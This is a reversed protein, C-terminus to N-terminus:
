RLNRRSQITVAVDFVTCGPPLEHFLERWTRKVEAELQEATGSNDIVFDALAGKRDLPWQAADRRRVEEASLGSREGVRQVRLELPASVVIVADFRDGQGTEYLLPIDQVVVQAGQARYAELLRESEARVWPHIIANLQQRQEDDAFVIRALAARDRAGSVGMEDGYTERIRELVAPDATAERALQDADILEAGLEQLLRAVTSKGSGINGTLGVHLM